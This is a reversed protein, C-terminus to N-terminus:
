EEKEENLKKTKFASLDVIKSELLSREKDFVKGLEKNEQKSGKLAVSLINKDKKMQM